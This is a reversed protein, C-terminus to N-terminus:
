ATRLSAAPPAPAALATTRALPTGGSAALNRSTTRSPRFRIMSSPPMDSAVVAGVAKDTRTIADECTSPLGPPTCITTSLYNYADNTHVIIAGKANPGAAAAGCAIFLVCAGLTARFM